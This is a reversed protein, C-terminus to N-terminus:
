PEHLAGGRQGDVGVVVEVCQGRQDILGSRHKIGLGVGAVGDACPRRMQRRYSAFKGIV